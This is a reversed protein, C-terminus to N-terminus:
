GRRRRFVSFVGLGSALLWLAAPVPVPSATVFATGSATGNANTFSAVSYFSAGGATPTSLAFDSADLGSGPNAVLTFVEQASGQFAPPNNPFRLVLDFRGVQAATLGAPLLSSTNVVGSQNGAPVSFIPAVFASPAVGTGTAPGFILSTLSTSPSNAVSPINFWLGTLTQTALAPTSGLLSTVTFKLTDAAADEIKVRLWPPAGGLTGGVVNAYNFEVVAASAAGSGALAMTALVLRRALSAAFSAGLVRLMM